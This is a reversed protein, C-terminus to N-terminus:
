FFTLRAAPDPNTHLTVPRALGIDALMHDSLSAIEDIARRRRRAAGLRNFLSRAVAAITRGPTAGIHDDLVFFTM